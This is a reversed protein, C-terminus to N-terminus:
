CNVLVTVTSSTLFIVGKLEYKVASVSLISYRSTVPEGIIKFTETNVPHVDM